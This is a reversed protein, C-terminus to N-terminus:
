GSNFVKHQNRGQQKAQYLAQDTKKILQQPNDALTPIATAIGISVTVTPHIQSAQHPIASKQLEGQIEEAVAIAGLLETNPLIIVFEEGGYRAVLDSSRKVVQSLMQALQILCADGQPHGYFDNYYKFYDVDLILLSLPQHNRLLRQWEQELREDFCRRNAVQTLGDLNVLKELEQNARQLQLQTTQLECGQCEVQNKLSQIMDDLAKRAKKREQILASFFLSMLSLIGTFSQIFILPYNQFVSFFIGYGQSTFLIATLTIVAVFISSGLNGIQYVTALILPLYLYAIPYNKLFTLFSIIM